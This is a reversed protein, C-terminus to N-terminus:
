LGNTGTNYFIMDTFTSSKAITPTSFSLNLRGGAPGNGYQIRIPYYVGATLNITNFVEGSNYQARILKNSTTFGTVATPGIWLYSADDSDLGFTYTETTRPLFYGLLQLSANEAFAPLTLSTYAGADTQSATAFWTPDDNHYGTYARAYLGDAYKLAAGGVIWPRGVILGDANNNNVVENGYYQTPLESLDYDDRSNGSATRDLAALNLKAKQRLERTALRSIKNHIRLKSGEVIGYSGITQSTDLVHDNFVLDFWTASYSFNTEMATKLEGITGATDVIQLNYVATNLLSQVTINITAM